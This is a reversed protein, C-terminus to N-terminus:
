YINALHNHTQTSCFVKAPIKLKKYQKKDLKLKFNFIKRNLIVTSSEHYDLCASVRSSNTLNKNRSMASMLKVQFKM